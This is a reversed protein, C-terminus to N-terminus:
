DRCFKIIDNRNEFYLKFLKEEIEKRRREGEDARYTFQVSKTFMKEIVDYEQMYENINKARFKLKRKEGLVGELLSHAVDYVFSNQKFLNKNRGDASISITIKINKENRLKDFISENLGLNDINLVEDSPLTTTIEFSSIIDKHAIIKLMDEVTIPVVETRLNTNKYYREFMDNIKRIGPAAQSGLYVIVSTEFFLYFYTHVEIDQDPDREIDEPEFTYRNRKQVNTIDKKRGIRGFIYDAHEIDCPVPNVSDFNQIKDFKLIEVVIWNPADEVPICINGNQQLIIGNNKILNKFLKELEVNSKYYRKCVDQSVEENARILQEEFLRLKYFYVTSMFFGGQGYRRDRLLKYVFGVNLFM